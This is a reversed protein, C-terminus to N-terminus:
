KYKRRYKSCVFGGLSFIVAAVCCHVILKVNESTMFSNEPFISLFSLLNLSDFLNIYISYAVPVLFAAGTNLLLFCLFYTLSSIAFSEAILQLLAFSDIPAIIQFVPFFLFIGVAYLLIALYQVQLFFVPKHYLYLLENGESEFFDYFLVLSWWSSFVPVWVHLQTVIVRLFQEPSDAYHRRFVLGMVPLVVFLVLLPVLFKIGKKRLRAFTLYIM